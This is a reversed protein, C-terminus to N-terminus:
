VVNQTAFLKELSNKLKENEAKMEALQLRLIEPDNKIDANKVSTLNEVDATAKKSVGVKSSFQESENKSETPIVKTEDELKANDAKHEDKLAGLKENKKKTVAIKKKYKIIESEDSDSDSFESESESSLYELDHDSDDDSTLSFESDSEDESDSEAILKDADDKPIKESTADSENGDFDVAENEPTSLKPTGMWMTYWSIARLEHQRAIIPKLNDYIDQYKAPIEKGKYKYCTIKDEAREYRYCLKELEDDFLMEPYHINTPNDYHKKFYKLCQFALFMFYLIVHFVLPDLNKYEHAFYFDVILAFLNIAQFFLIRKSSLEYEVLSSEKMEEFAAEKEAM